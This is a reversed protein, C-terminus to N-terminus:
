FGSFGDVNRKDWPIKIFNLTSSPNVRLYFSYTGRQPQWDVGMQWCHLKRYFGLDPYTIRKSQFDYGINGFRVSWKDTLDITGRMSVSNTQFYLSDRQDNDVDWNYVLTHNISFREFLSLFDDEGSSTDQSQPAEDRNNTQRQKAKGGLFERIKKVSLSTNLRANAGEFRLPKGTRAYYFDNSRGGDDDIAYPDFSTSFNFTSIGKFLRTTGRMSVRSFKLSDAAINYNGTISINDFIRVKQETSDKKSFYKAEFVNTISYGIAARLGNDPPRGYIGDEFPSYRDDVVEGRSNLYNYNKYYGLDPNGYDPSYGFSISPKAVHRIGRLWGKNRQWTGFIQTNLAVSASMEGFRAFGFNKIDLVEGYSTTDYTELVDTSDSNFISTTDITLMADFQKEITNMYWTEEYSVSPNVSFYKLLKFSTSMSASQNLGFQADDLTQQTFLTSDSTIFQNRFQAKYRLTIDEYWQDKGPKKNKFPFMNQTTFDLTPLNIKVEGTRTNQSHSMSAAFNFPRGPFSKSFSINSSLSNQLVSQADNQNLSQYNNTQINVSGGFRNTPHARNDQNHSWRISFSRTHDYEGRVEVQRDTFSLGLSGSYKYRKRYNSTLHLGYTGKFYIDGTLSLDIYDNIPLYYGINRLGFGWVPSYEYGRPFLIGQTRDKSIPFFGFPLWIPTPVGMIELNSPGVVVVKDPVVKQKRSRIGYHPEPHNCTTFIANESYITDDQTTDRVAGSVFKARDGLVYLDNYTSTVDYIIGKQTKFNYRMREAQFEQDKDKFAPIGVKNGASDRRFEAEVENNAYDFIIYEAKLSLSTYQVSAEGYLYIKQGVIDYIISDRANYDIPEDLADKSYAVKSFDTSTSDVVLTDIALSLTDLNVPTTDKPTPLPKKTKQATLAFCMVLQFVLCYISIHLPKNM